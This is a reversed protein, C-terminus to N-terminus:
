RRGRKVAVATKDQAPKARVKFFIEGGSLSETAPSSVDLGGRKLSQTIKEADSHTTVQGNIDISEPDIQIKLIRLKVNKPLNTIVTHLEDMANPIHPVDYGHGMVGSLKRMESELRSVINSPVRRSGPYVKKYIKVQSKEYSEAMTEYRIGRIAFCSIMTVAFILLLIGAVRLSGTSKAWLNKRALKGIRLNSISVTKESTIKGCNELLNKVLSEYGDDIRNLEMEEKLAEVASQPLEGVMVASTNKGDVPNNLIDIQLPLLLQRDSASSYWGHIVGDILRFAELTQGNNLIVYDPDCECNEFCSQLMLVATPYIASIELGADTLAKVIGLVEATNVAFALCRGGIAPLFVATLEEAALPLQEELRYLMMETRQRRPLDDCSIMAVQIHKSDLGLFIEEGSYESENFIELLGDLVSLPGQSHEFEVERVQLEEDKLYVLRWCTKTLFLFLQSARM